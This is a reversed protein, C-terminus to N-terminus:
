IHCISYHHVILVLCDDRRILKTIPTVKINWFSSNHVSQSPLRIEQLMVHCSIKTHNSYSKTILTNDGNQPYSLLNHRLARLNCIHLALLGCSWCYGKAYSSVRMAVVTVWCKTMMWVLKGGCTM